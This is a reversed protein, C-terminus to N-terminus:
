CTAFSLIQIPWAQLRGGIEIAENRRRRTMQSEQQPRTTMHELSPPPGWPFAQPNSTHQHLCLVTTVSTSAKPLLKGEPDYQTALYWMIAGSEFVPLDGASHDVLAPIRCSVEDSAFRQRANM